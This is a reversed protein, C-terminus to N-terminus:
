MACTVSVLVGSCALMNLERGASWFRIGARTCGLSRPRGHGSQTGGGGQEITEMRRRVEPGDSAAAGDANQFGAWREAWAKCRRALSCGEPPLWRSWIQSSTLSASQEVGAKVRGGAGSMLRLSWNFLGNVVCWFRVICTEMSPRGNRSAITGADTRTDQGRTDHGRHM